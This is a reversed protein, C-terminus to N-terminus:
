GEHVGYGRDRILAPIRGPLPPLKTEAFPGLVM